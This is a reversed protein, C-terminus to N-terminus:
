NETCKGISYRKAFNSLDILDVDGDSDSDKKGCTYVRSTDECKVGYVRVFSDLDAINLLGDSNADIGGCLSAITTTPNTDANIKTFQESLDSGTGFNNTYCADIRSALTVVENTGAKFIPSGSDGFCLGGTEGEFSISGDNFDTSKICLDASKRLPMFNESNDQKGYGVIKYDCGTSATGITAYTTLLIPDKLKLVAIDSAIGYGSSWNPHIEVSEVTYYNTPNLSFQGVGIFIPTNDDACHAATIATDQNIIATGCVEMNGTGKDSIMYGAFDHGSALEGGFIAASDDPKLNQRIKEAFGIFAFIMLILFVFKILKQMEENNNM